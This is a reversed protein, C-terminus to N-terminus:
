SSLCEQRHFESFSICKTEMLCDYCREHDFLFVLHILTFVTIITSVGTTLIIMVNLRSSEPLDDSSASQFPNSVAPYRDLTVSIPISISISIDVFSLAVLHRRLRKGLSCNTKKVTIVFSFNHPFAFPAFVFVLVAFM